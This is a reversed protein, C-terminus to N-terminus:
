KKLLFLNIEIVQRINKGLPYNLTEYSKKRFQVPHVIDKQGILVQFFGSSDSMGLLKNNHTYIYARPIPRNGTKDILSGKLVIKNKYRDTKPLTYTLNPDGLKVYEKMPPLGVARRRKDVNPEDSIPFIHLHGKVDYNLQSGYVQFKGQYMNTRDILLALDGARAKKNIVAQKMLPLYKLQSQLPAHQIVLFLADNANKSTEDKGLWGYTDLINGVVIMNLSDQLNMKKVLETFEASNIGYRQITSDWSNRYKQDDVLIKEWSMRSATLNM